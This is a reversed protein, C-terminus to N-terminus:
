VFRQLLGFGSSLLLVVGVLRVLAGPHLRRALLAGLPAAIVAGILLGLVAHGLAGWGLAMIFTISSALAVFFEALNVTGVAKRPMVGQLILNPTCIPGWGGGGGADLFGAVLGLPEAYKPDRHRTHHLPRRLVLIFGVIALYTQIVPKAIGAPLWLLLSAGAVAGAVGPIALRWFLRWEVNGALAHSIGSIPATVVKVAHVGASAAAPPVGTAILVSSSIVGFGGGLTGDILQAAFGVAAFLLLVQDIQM